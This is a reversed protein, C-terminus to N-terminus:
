NIGKGWTIETDQISDVQNFFNDNPHDLQQDEKTYRRENTRELVILNNECRVSISAEEGSEEIKMVDMRGRFILEPDGILNGTSEDLAGFWIKLPRDQYPESLATSIISSPIGSLTVTVNNAQVEQVEDVSSIQLLDGGGTFTDSNFTIDGYGSWFRLTESDFEAQVLRISFLSDSTVENAMATTLDRSM